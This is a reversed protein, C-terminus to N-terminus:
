YNLSDKLKFIMDSNNSINGYAFRCKYQCLIDTNM